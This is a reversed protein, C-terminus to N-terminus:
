EGQSWEPDRKELFAAVGEATDRNLMNEVMVAGTLEYAKDLPLQLQDYFARKGVRVASGLKSAIKGALADTETGLDEGPVVRNVLGLERARPATIFEGTTLMEFVQKRPVNRSLAVMPTSCFLGINVGNVGFRTDKAAVALDCSAVLQCGAATAIGHVQAIVPQPLRQIMQMMVACRDFLDRLAKAGGDNAQRKATMEKLDHGACFAKGAGRLVIVRSTESGQLDRFADTLAALMADSLANLNGPSNMTLTTIAGQDERLLLEESM